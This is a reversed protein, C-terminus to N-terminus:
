TRDLIHSLSEQLEAVFELDQRESLAKMLVVSGDNMLQIAREDGGETSARMYVISLEGVEAYRHWEDSDVVTMTGFLSAASVKAIKLNGFHAGTPVGVELVDALNISRHATTIPQNARVLRGLSNRADRRSTQVLFYGKDRNYFAHFRRNDLLRQINKQNVVVDVDRAVQYLMEYREFRPDDAIGQFTLTTEATEEGWPLATQVSTSIAAGLDLRPMDACLVYM